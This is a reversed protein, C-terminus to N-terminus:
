LHVLVPIREVIEYKGVTENLSKLLVFNRYILPTVLFRFDLFFFHLYYCIIVHGVSFPFCSLCHDVFCTDIHRTSTMIYSVFQEDLMVGCESVWTYIYRIISKFPLVNSFTNNRGESVYRTDRLIIRETKRWIKVSKNAEQKPMNSYPINGNILWVDDEWPKM